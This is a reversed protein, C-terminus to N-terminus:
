TAPELLFIGIVTVSALIAGGNAYGTGATREPTWRVALHAAVCLVASVLLFLLLIPTLLDSLDSGADILVFVGVVPTALGCLLSTLALRSIRRRPVSASIEASM